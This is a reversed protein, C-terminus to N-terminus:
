LLFGGGIVSATKQQQAGVRPPKKAINTKAASPTSGMRMLM